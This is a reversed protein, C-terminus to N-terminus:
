TTPRRSPGATLEQHAAVLKPRTDLEMQEYEQSM